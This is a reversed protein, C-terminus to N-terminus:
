QAIARGFGVPGSEPAPIGAPTRAFDGLPLVPEPICSVLAGVALFSWCIVGRVVGFLVYGAASTSSKQVSHGDGFGARRAPKLGPATAKLGRGWARHIADM